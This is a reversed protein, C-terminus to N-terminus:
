SAALMRQVYRRDVGLLKAARRRSGSARRLAEDRMARRLMRQAEKLDVLGVFHRALDSVLDHDAPPLGSPTESTGSPTAPMTLM